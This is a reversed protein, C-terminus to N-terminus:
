YLGKLQILMEEVREMAEEVQKRADAIKSQVLYDAILGDFFFDAFSLFGNVEMKLDLPVTVDALERQFIEFDRQAAKICASADNMKSHKILDTFFGGGFLDVIGWNKASNLKEKAARLSELSREGAAIAEGIERRMLESSM